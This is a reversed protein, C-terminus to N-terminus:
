ETKRATTNSANLKVEVKKNNLNIDITYENKDLSVVELALSEFETEYYFCVCFLRGKDVFFDTSCYKDGNIIIHNITFAAKNTNCLFVRKNKITKEDVGNKFVYYYEANATNFLNPIYIEPKNEEIKEKRRASKNAIITLIVGFLTCFSGSIGTYLTIMASAFERNCKEFSDYLCVGIFFLCIALGLLPYIVIMNSNNTKNDKKSKKM